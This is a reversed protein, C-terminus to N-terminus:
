TQLESDSTPQPQIGDSEIKLLKIASGNILNGGVRKTTYFTVFSKSTFPDRLVRIDRNEVIKYANKFDGFAIIPLATNSMPPMDSTQYVPAGLLTEEGSPGPQLLYQGSSTKLSRITQLVSRHMIFAGRGAFYEDLSYYLSIIADSSLQRFPIRQVQAEDTGDESSLIGVPKKNGDGLIFAHNEKRSFADVLNDILWGELDVLSDDLLKKAIKPQSYLEHLYITTKSLKPANTDASIEEGWGVFTDQNNTTFCELSDGSVKEVSCLKRMVSGQSLRKDIHVSIERPVLYALTSGSDLGKKEFGTVQGHRIYETLSKCQLAAKPDEHLNIRKSAIELRDLRDGQQDFKRNTEEMYQLLDTTPCQNGEYSASSEQEQPENYPPIFGTISDKTEFNSLTM